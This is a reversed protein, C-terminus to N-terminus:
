SRRADGRLQQAEGEAELRENDTLEGLGEKAGGVVQDGAGKVHRETKASQQQMEGEAELRENDTLEGAGEKAKGKLEDWREDMGM